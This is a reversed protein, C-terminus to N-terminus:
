ESIPSEALFNNVKEKYDSIVKKRVNSDVEIFCPVNFDYDIGFSKLLTEIRSLMEVNDDKRKYVKFRKQFIISFVCAHFSDTYVCDAKSILSIFDSPGFRYYNGNSKDLLDIIKIDVEAIYPKAGLFYYVVYPTKENNTNAVSLWDAPSLLLTPDCLCPVNKGILENILEKGSEERVSIKDFELLHEKFFSVWEEPLKSVGFSAAFSRKKSNPAFTLLMMDCIKTYGGFTPNWVQDSGVYFYNYHERISLLANKSYVFRTKIYKNTFKKFLAERKYECNNSCIHKLASVIRRFITREEYVITESVFGISNLYYSLAYNQLRNGYNKEGYLTVIAVKNCNNM